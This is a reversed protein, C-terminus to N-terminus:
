CGGRGQGGQIRLRRFRCFSVQMLTGLQQVLGALLGADVELWRTGGATLLACLSQM